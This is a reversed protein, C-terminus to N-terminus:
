EKLDKIKILKSPCHFGHRLSLPKVLFDRMRCGSPAVLTPQPHLFRQPKQRLANAVKYRAAKFEMPADFGYQAKELNM